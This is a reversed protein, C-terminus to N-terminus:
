RSHGVHAKREQRIYWFSPDTIEILSALAKSVKELKSLYQRGLWYQHNTKEIKGGIARYLTAAILITLRARLPLYAYGKKAEEYYHDATQLLKQCAHSADNEERQPEKILVEPTITIWSQPIYVRDNEADEKIDRAINTLQMAIGLNIAAPLAAEQQAEKVGLLPCMLAGVTGAVQYCYHLLHDKSKISIQSRCDSIVGDLLDLVYKKDLKQANLFTVFESIYPDNSHSNSINTKISLLETKADEINEGEDAIDDVVRCFEYLVIVKNFTEQGLFAAAFSFTKAHKQFLIKQRETSDM